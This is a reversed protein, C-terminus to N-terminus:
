VIRTQSDDSDQVKGVDVQLNELRTIREHLSKLAEDDRAAKSKQMEERLQQRLGDLDVELRKKSDLVSDILKANLAQIDKNQQILTDLKDKDQSKKTRDTIGNTRRHELYAGIVLWIGDSVFNTNITNWTAKVVGPMYEAVHYKDWLQVIVQQDLHQLFLLDIPSNSEIKKVSTYKQLNLELNRSIRMYPTHYVSKSLDHYNGNEDIRDDQIKSSKFVEFSSELIPLYSTELRDFVDRLIPQQTLYDNFQARLKQINLIGGALVFFLDKYFIDQLGFEYVMERYENRQLYGRRSSFAANLRDFKPLAEDMIVELSSKEGSPAMAFFVLIYFQMDARTSRAITDRYMFGVIEERLNQLTLQRNGKSKETIRVPITKM